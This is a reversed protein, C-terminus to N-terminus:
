ICIFLLDNKHRLALCAASAGTKGHHGMKNGILCASLMHDALFTSGGGEVAAFIQLIIGLRVPHDHDVSPIGFDSPLATGAAM